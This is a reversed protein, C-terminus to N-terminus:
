KFQTMGTGSLWGEQFNESGGLSPLPDLSLTTAVNKTAIQYIIEHINVDEQVQPESLQPDHIEPILQADLEAQERALKLEWSKETWPAPGFWPDDELIDPAPYTM